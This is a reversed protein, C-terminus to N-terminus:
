SIRKGEADFFTVGPHARGAKEGLPELIYDSDVPSLSHRQRLIGVLRVLTEKYKRDLRTYPSIPRKKEEAM